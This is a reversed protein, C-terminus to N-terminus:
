LAVTEGRRLQFGASDLATAPGYRKTVEELHAAIETSISSEKRISRV